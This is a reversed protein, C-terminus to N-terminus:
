EKVIENPHILRETNDKLGRFTEKDIYNDHIMVTYIGRPLNNMEEIDTTIKEFLNTDPEVDEAMFLEIVFIANKPELENEQFFSKLEEKTM